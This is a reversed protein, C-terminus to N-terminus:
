RWSKRWLRTSCLQSQQIRWISILYESSHQQCVSVALFQKCIVHLFNHLCKDKLSAHVKHTKVFVIKTEKACKSDSNEELRDVNNHFNVVVVSNVNKQLFIEECYHVKSHGWVKDSVIHVNNQDLYVFCLLLVFILCIIKYLFSPTLIRQMIDAFLGSNRSHNYSHM